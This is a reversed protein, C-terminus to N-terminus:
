RWARGSNSGLGVSGSCRTASMFSRLFATPAYPANRTAALDRGAQCRGDGRSASLFALHFLRPDAESTRSPTSGTSHSSTSSSHATKRRCPARPPAGHWWSNTCAPLNASSAAARIDWPNARASSRTNLSGDKSRPLPVFGAFGSRHVGEISSCDVAESADGTVLM